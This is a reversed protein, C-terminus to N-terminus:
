MFVYFYLLLKFLLGQDNKSDDTEENTKLFFEQNIIEYQFGYPNDILNDFKCKFRDIM